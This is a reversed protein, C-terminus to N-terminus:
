STPLSRAHRRRHLYSYRGVVRSCALNLREIMCPPSKADPRSMVIVDFVRGYSGIFSEGEPADDLWGFSLSATAETSRPVDHKQMFSEFIQRAKKAEDAIDRKYSELPIGGVIDGGIFENIAWHLAFGEMYSDCRRALLLATELASQMADNNETPVLISKMSM